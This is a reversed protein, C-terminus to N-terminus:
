IKIYLNYQIRKQITSIFHFQKTAEAIINYNNKRNLKVNIKSDRTKGVNEM